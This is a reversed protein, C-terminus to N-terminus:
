RHKRDPLRDRIDALLVKLEATQQEIADRLDGQVVTLTNNFGHRTAMLDTRTAERATDIRDLIRLMADNTRKEAKMGNGPNSETSKSFKFALGIGAAALGIGVGILAVTEPVQPVSPIQM